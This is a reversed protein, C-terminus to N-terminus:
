EPRSPFKGAAFSAGSSPSGVDHAAIIAPQRNGPLRLRQQKGVRLLLQERVGAEDTLREASQWAVDCNRKAAEEVM